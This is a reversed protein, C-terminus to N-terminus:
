VTMQLKAPVNHALLYDNVTHFLTILSPCLVSKNTFLEDKSYRHILSGGRCIPTWPCGACDEPLTAASNNLLRMIPSNVFQKLTANYATLGTEMLITDASRLTDDPSLLGNSAITFATFDDKEVGFGHLATAGGLLMTLVSNLIRIFIEPNDDYTWEAIITKLFEGYVAPQFNAMTTAMDHTIDPLLFDISTFKLEDVFHRYIRKASYDPNIVCLVAPELFPYDKAAHQLLRIGKVVKDYTSRGRKDLRYIDNYEPPGDLSVGIGVRYKALAEIWRDNILMANTQLNFELQTAPALVDIFTECMRNFDDIKQMLPEGGHFDIKLSKVQMELCGQKLFNAIQKITKQSIYPPHKLYSQDGGNFFYCYTCNINCREVTKLIVELHKLQQKMIVEQAM